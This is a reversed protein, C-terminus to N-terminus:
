LPQVFHTTRCQCLMIRGTRVAPRERQEYITSLVMDGYKGVMTPTAMGPDWHPYHRVKSSPSAPPGIHTRISVGFGSPSGRQLISFIRFRKKKQKRTLAKWWGACVPLQRHNVVTVFLYGGARAGLNYRSSSGWKKRPIQIVSPWSTDSSGREEKPTTILIQNPVDVM